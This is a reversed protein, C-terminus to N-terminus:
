MRRRRDPRRTWNTRPVMGSLGSAIQGFANAAVLFSVAHAAVCRAGDSSRTNATGKARSHIGMRGAKSRAAVAVQRCVRSWAEHAVLRGADLKLPAPSGSSSTNGSGSSIVALIKNLADRLRCALISGGPQALCASWARIRPLPVSTGPTALRRTSRWRTATKPWPSRLALRPTLKVLVWQWANGGHFQRGLLRVSNWRCTRHNPAHIGRRCRAVFTPPFV